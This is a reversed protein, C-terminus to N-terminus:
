MQQAQGGDASCIHQKYLLTSRGKTVTEPLITSLRVLSKGLISVTSMAIM